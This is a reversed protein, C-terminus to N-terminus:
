IQTALKGVKPYKSIFGSDPLRLCVIALNQDFGSRLLGALRGHFAYRRMQCLQCATGTSANSNGFTVWIGLYM